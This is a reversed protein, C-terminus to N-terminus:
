KIGTVIATVSVRGKGGAELHFPYVLFQTDLITETSNHCKLIFPLVLLLIPFDGPLVVIGGERVTDFVIPIAEFDIKLLSTIQQRPLPVLPVGATFPLAQSLLVAVRKSECLLTMHTVDTRIPSLPTPPRQTSGSLRTHSSSTVGDLSWKHAEATPIIFM